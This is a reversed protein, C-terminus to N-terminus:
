IAALRNSVDQKVLAHILSQLRGAMVEQLNFSESLRHDVVLNDKWRYTRIKEARGGTGIMSARAEAREADAAAKQQEYLRAKLLQWAKERNRHQSKTEQMRVEIGSSEHILHVATAVKNVNQGGPGQATTVMERVDNPDLEVEVNEPEPLVAVTATSTHIRGQTETTPVRKVQHTGAEYGLEAWVGEGRVNVIAQRVGGADGASVAMDEWAWNREGAYLRYMNLLDGAWLAAEDGGIGARIELIVAGISRDDATVLEHQISEVLASVRQELEPLEARALERLDPDAAGATSSQVEPELLERLEGIQRVSECYDEYQEVLTRLAAKRITLQRVKQHDSLIDPDLLQQDIQRSQEALEALKRKINDALRESM